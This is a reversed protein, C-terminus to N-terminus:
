EKGILADVDKQEGPEDDLNKMSSTPSESAARMSSALASIVSVLVTGLLILGVLWPDIDLLLRHALISFAGSRSLFLALALGAVVGVAGGALGTGLAQPFVMRRLDASSAGLTRAIGLARRSQRVEVSFVSTISLVALLGSITGIAFLIAAINAQSLKGAQFVPIANSSSLESSGGHRIVLNVLDPKDAFWARVVLEWSFNGAQVQHVGAALGKVVFRGMSSGMGPTTINLSTYAGSDVTINVSFTGASRGGNDVVVTGYAEGSDKISLPTLVFSAISPSFTNPYSSIDLVSVSASANTFGSLAATLPSAGLAGASLAAWGSSDAQVVQGQFSVTSGAAPQGDFKSVTVNFSSGSIVKAPCSVRLYPKVVTVNETLKVPFSGSISVEVTHTGLHSLTFSQHLVASASANLEASSNARPTGDVLFAVMQSGPAAGWNRLTVSVDLTENEAVEARSLWMDSLVFRATRPSLLGSLWGPDSTAVRIISVKGDPMASLHRAVALPVILEDDLPTGTSFHDTVTVFDMRSYFSGVLPLTWPLGVGLRKLLNDGVTANLREGVGPVVQTGSAGVPWAISGFGGGMGRVVFSSGKWSSFTLIEPSAGTVNPIEHLAGVLDLDVQSSFITPASSDTIIFWEGGAFTTPVSNVGALLSSSSTFITIALAVVIIVRRRIVRM